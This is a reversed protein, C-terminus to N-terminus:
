HTGEENFGAVSKELKLFDNYIYRTECNVMYWAPSTLWQRLKKDRVIVKDKEGGEKEKEQHKQFRDMEEM